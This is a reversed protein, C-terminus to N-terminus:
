GERWFKIKASTDMVSEIVRTVDNVTARATVRFMTSKVVTRGGFNIGITKMGSVNLVEQREKFPSIERQEIISKALSETMDPHLMVLVPIEATNINIKIESDGHIKSNGHVTLYPSITNYVRDDIGTILKLEDLSWLYANKALDESDFLRPESDPDIWDAITDTLNPNINLYEFLKKLAPYADPATKGNNMIINNINFKSNEDTIRVLLSVGPGFNEWPPLVLERQDTYPEKNVSEVLEASLAHGSRAIYSARQAAGWNSMSSTEIYVDYVFDVVLGTLITILLLTIILASGKSDLVKRSM